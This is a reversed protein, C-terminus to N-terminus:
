QNLTRSQERSVSLLKITRRDTEDMNRQFSKLKGLLIQFQLPRQKLDQVAGKLKNKSTPLFRFCHDLATKLKCESLLVDDGLASLVDHESRLLKIKWLILISDHLIFTNIENIPIELEQSSTWDTSEFTPQDFISQMTEFHESKRASEGKFAVRWDVILPWRLSDTSGCFNLKIRLCLTEKNSKRVCAQVLCSSSQGIEQIPSANEFSPADDLESLDIKTLINACKDKILNFLYHAIDESVDHKNDVQKNDVQRYGEKENKNKLLDGSEKRRGLDDHYELSTEPTSSLIEITLMLLICKETIFDKIDDYTAQLDQSYVSDSSEATPRKFSTFARALEVNERRKNRVGVKWRVALPWNFNCQKEFSTLQLRFAFMEGASKRVCTQLMCRCNHGFLPMPLVQEYMPRREFESLEIKNLMHIKVDGLDKGFGHSPQTTEVTVGTIAVGERNSSSILNDGGSESLDTNTQEEVGFYENFKLNKPQPEQPRVLPEAKRKDSDPLGINWRTNLTSSVDDGILPLARGIERLSSGVQSLILQNTIDPELDDDPSQNERPNEYVAQESMSKEVRTQTRTTKKPNKKCFTYEMKYVLGDNTNHIQHKTVYVHGSGDLPSGSFWLLIESVWTAVRRETKVACACTGVRVTLLLQTLCRVYHYDHNETEHNEHPWRSWYFFYM